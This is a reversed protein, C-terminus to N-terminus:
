HEASTNCDLFNQAEFAARKLIASEGVAPARGSAAHIFNDVAADQLPQGPQGVAFALQSKWCTDISLAFFSMRLHPFSIVHSHLTESEEDSGSFALPGM